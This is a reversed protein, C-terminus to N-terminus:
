KPVTSGFAASVVSSWCYCGRARSEAGRAPSRQARSAVSISRAPCPAADFVFRFDNGDVTGMVDAEGLTASSYHGSLTAGDQELTVSPTTTGGGDTVVELAWEGAVDAPEQGAEIVALPALVVVTVAAVVRRMNGRFRGAMQHHM